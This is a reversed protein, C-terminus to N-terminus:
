KLVVRKKFRISRGSIGDDEVFQGKLKEGNEGFIKKIEEPQLKMMPSSISLDYRGPKLNEGGFTVEFKGDKVSTNDQGGYSNDLMNKIQTDTMKDGGTNPPLGLVEVCYIDQNSLEVMVKFGDPLNTTCAVKYKGNGLNEVAYSLSLEKAEASIPAKKDSKISSVAVKKNPKISIGAITHSYRKTSNDYYTHVEYIGESEPVANKLQENSYTDIIEYYSSNPIENHSITKSNKPLMSAYPQIRNGNVAKWTINIIKGNLAVAVIEDNKFSMPNTDNKPKGYASKWSDLTDGLGANVCILDMKPASTNSPESVKVPQKKDDNGCGTIMISICFFLVTLVKFM